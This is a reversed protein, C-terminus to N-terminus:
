CLQPVFRVVAHNAQQVAGSSGQAHCENWRSLLVSACLSLGEAVGPDSRPTRFGVYLSFQEDVQTKQDKGEFLYGVAPVAVARVQLPM